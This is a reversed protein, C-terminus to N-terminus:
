FVKAFQESTQAVTVHIAEMAWTEDLVSNQLKVYISHGTVRRRSWRNRGAGLIGSYVATAALAEEASDGAHVSFTVNAATNSLVGSLGTLLIPIMEEMQLPGILVYSDIATGDDDDSDYSVSRVYGDWSGLLLTRDLPDDGDLLHLCKPNHSATAHRWPFWAKNRTDFLYHVAATTQDLPTFVILFGQLRDDWEMEILTNAMDTDALREDISTSSIREPNRDGLGMRYLGGRSGIFWLSKDPHQSYPRGWAVGTVDSIRDFRGGAAPNGTLQAISNDMGIVLYDREWPMLCNIVDQMNGADSSNGSVAQTASTTEPSYDFDLANNLASMFWSQPDGAVGALVLRAGSNAILTHRKGNADVPLDGAMLHNTWDDIFGTASNYYATSEGDAYYLNPYFVSSFIRPASASLSDTGATVIVATNTVRDVRAVSGGAAVLLRTDRPRLGDVLVVFTTNISLPKDQDDGAVTAWWAVQTDLDANVMAINKTNDNRTVRFGGTSDAYVRRLETWTTGTDTDTPDMSKAVAQNSGAYVVFSYGTGLVNPGVAALRDNTADYAIGSAYETAGGTSTLPTSWGSVAVGASDRYEIFSTYTPGSADYKIGSIFFNGTSDGQLAYCDMTDSANGDDTVTQVETSSITSASEPNLVDLVLKLDDAGAVGVTSVVGLLGGSAALYHGDHTQFPTGTVAGAWAGDDIQTGTSTYYRYIVDSYAGAADGDWYIFLRSGIVVMGAVPPITSSSSGHVVTATWQADQALNYKIITVSTSTADPRTALYVNGSSDWCSSQYLGTGPGNDAVGLNTILSWPSAAPNAVVLQGAGSAPTLNPGTLHNIDQVSSDGNIQGTVFKQIGPRQGGRRRGAVPDVALVNELSPSTEGPQDTVADYESLGRYPFGLRITKSPM